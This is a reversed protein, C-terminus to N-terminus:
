LAQFSLDVQPHNMISASQPNDQDEAFAANEMALDSASSSGSQLAPDLAQQAGHFGEDHCLFSSSGMQGQTDTSAWTDDAQVNCIQRLQLTTWPFSPDQIHGM